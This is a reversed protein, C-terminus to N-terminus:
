APARERSDWHCTFPRAPHPDRREDEGRDEHCRQHQIKTTRGSGVNPTPKAGHGNLQDVGGTLVLNSSHDQRRPGGVNAPAVTPNSEFPLVPVDFSNSASPLAAAPANRPPRPPAGSWASSCRALRLPTSPRPPMPSAPARRRPRRNLCNSTTCDAHRRSRLTGRHARRDRHHGLGEGVAAATIAWAM